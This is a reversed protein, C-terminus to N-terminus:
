KGNLADNSKKVIENVISESDIGYKEFLSNKV